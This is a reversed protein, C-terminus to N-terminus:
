MSWFSDKLAPYLSQYTRHRNAYIKSAAAEPLVRDEERIVAQCAEEVTSYHGSGTM